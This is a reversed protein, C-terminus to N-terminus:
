LIGDGNRRSPDHAFRKIPESVPPGIDQPHASADSHSRALYAVLASILVGANGALIFWGLIAWVSFGLVVGLVAAILASLLGLLIHAVVM